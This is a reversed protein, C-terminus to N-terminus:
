LGFLEDIADGADEPRPAPGTDEMENWHGGQPQGHAIAPSLGLGGLPDDDGDQMNNHHQADNTRGGAGQNGVGPDATDEGEEDSSDICDLNEVPFRLLAAVGSLASLKEGSVHQSSFIVVSDRRGTLERCLEVMEVYKARDALDKKQRFLSDTLFLKEVAGNQLAFLVQGPGYCAREPDTALRKYLQDLGEIQEGAKTSAIRKAVGEQELLEQLGQKNATSCNAEFFIENLRRLASAASSGSASSSSAGGSPGGKTTSPGGGQGPGGSFIEAARKGNDDRLYNFFETKLFGPGALVVCKINDFNVHLKFGEIIRDYFKKLAKDFNGKEFKRNKPLMTQVKFVVKALVNTLFFFQALGQAQDLLLVCTDSTARIDTSERIIDLHVTDWANKEIEIKENLELSITHNAGLPVYECEAVNVGPFRLEDGEADYDVDKTIEIKLRVRRREKSVTGTAQAKEVKRYTQATVCDGRAVLNYLHWLDESEEPILVVSGSKTTPDVNRRLLKM